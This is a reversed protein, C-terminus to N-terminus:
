KDADFVRGRLVYKIAEWWTVSIAFTTEAYQSDLYDTYHMLGKWGSCRILGEKGNPFKVIFYRANKPSKRKREM